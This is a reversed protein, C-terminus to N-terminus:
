KGLAFMGGGAIYSPYLSFVIAAIVLRAMAVAALRGVTALRVLVMLPRVSSSLFVWSFSTAARSRFSLRAALLSVKLGRRLVLVLDGSM